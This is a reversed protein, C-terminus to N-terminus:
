RQGTSSNPSFPFCGQRPILGEWSWLLGWPRHILEAQFFAINSPTPFYSSLVGGLLLVSLFTPMFVSLPKGPLKPYVLATRTPKSCWPYKSTFQSLPRLWQPRRWTRAWVNQITKLHSNVGCTQTKPVLTIIINELKQVKKFLSINRYSILRENELSNSTILSLLYNQWILVMFMTTM